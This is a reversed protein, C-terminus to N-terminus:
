VGKASRSEGPSFGFKSKFAHSFASRSRYGAKAAVHDISDGSALAIISQSLRVMRLWQAPPMGTETTFIREATRRSLGAGSLADELKGDFALLKEALRKARGDTPLVISYENAKSHEIENLIVSCLSLDAEIRDDLREKQCVRLIAEHLLGSVNIAHLSPSQAYRQPRMYLTRLELDSSMCFAHPTEAPLWLARRSPLICVTDPLHVRMAGSQAYLLQPWTHTHGEQFGGASYDVSLSRVLFHPEDAPTMMQRM